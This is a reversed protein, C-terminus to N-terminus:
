EATAPVAATYACNRSAVEAALVQRFELVVEHMWLAIWLADYLPKDYLRRQWAATRTRLLRSVAVSGVVASDGPSNACFLGAILLWTSRLSLCSLRWLDRM